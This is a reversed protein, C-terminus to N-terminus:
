CSEPFFKPDPYESRFRGKGWYTGNIKKFVSRFGGKEMFPDPDTLIVRILFGSNKEM